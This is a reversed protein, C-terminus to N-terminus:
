QQGGGVGHKIQQSSSDHTLPMDAPNLRQKTLV